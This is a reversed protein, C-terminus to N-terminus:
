RRSRDRIEVNSVPQDDSFRSTSEILLMAGNTKTDPGNLPLMRLGQPFRDLRFCTWGLIRDKSYSVDDMVKIRCRATLKTGKSNQRTCSLRFRLNRRQRLVAAPLRLRPKPEQASSCSNGHGQARIASARAVMRPEFGLHSTMGVWLTSRRKCQAARAYHYTM